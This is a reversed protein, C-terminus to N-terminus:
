RDSSLAIPSQNDKVSSSHDNVLSTNSTPSRHGTVVGIGCRFGVAVARILDLNQFAQVGYPLSRRHVDAAGTHIAEMMEDIFNDIVTDILM